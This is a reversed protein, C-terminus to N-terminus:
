RAEHGFDHPGELLLADLLVLPKGVIAANWQVVSCGVM